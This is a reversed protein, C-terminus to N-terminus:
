EEYRLDIEQLKLKSVKPIGTPPNLIIDKNYIISLRSNKPDIQDQNNQFYLNGIRTSGAFSRNEAIGKVANLTIRRGYIGGIIKINSGVGYIEMDANSYFFASMKKPVDSYQNNNSIHINGNALIVLTGESNSLEQITADNKVYITGNTNLNNNVTLSGNLYMQGQLSFNNTDTDGAIYIYHNPDTLSLKGYLNGKGAVKVSGNVILEGGADITLNGRVMVNGHITLTRNSQVHLNNFSVDTLYLSPTLFGWRGPYDGKNNKNQNHLDGNKDNILKLVDIPNVAATKTRIAPSVSFYNNIQGPLIATPLFKTECVYRIPIGLFTEWRCEEFINNYFLNGGVSLSGKIAPFSTDVFIESNGSIYKGKNGTELDGTILVDGEIYSAGNFRINGESVMSYEFVENVAESSIIITKRLSRNKEGIPATINIRERYLGTSGNELTTRDITFPSGSFSTLHDVKNRFSNLITGIPTNGQEIQLNLRDIEGEIQAMADEIAMQADANSKINTENISVYRMSTVTANLALLGMISILTMILLVSLLSYGQNQMLARILIIM